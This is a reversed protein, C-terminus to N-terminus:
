NNNILRLLIRSLYDADQCILIPSKGSDKEIGVGDSYPTVALISSYKISINKKHGMFIIRKNTVFVHGNDIEMLMDSTVKHPTINGIRYRMGKTIKISTSLGSYSISKTVTRHEFWKCYSDFHCVEEKQLSIDTALIPLPNNELDWYKRYRLLTENSKDVFGANLLKTTEIIRDYGEPSLSGETTEDSVMKDVIDHGINYAINKVKGEPLNNSTAVESIINNLNNINEQKQIVLKYFSSLQEYVISDYEKPKLKELKTGDPLTGITNKGRTSKIFSRYIFIVLKYLLYFLLVMIAYALVAYGTDSFKTTSNSTLNVVAGILIPMSIVILIVIWIIKKTKQQM